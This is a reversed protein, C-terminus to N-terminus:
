LIMAKKSVSPAQSLASPHAESVASSRLVVLASYLSAPIANITDTNPEVSVGVEDPASGLLVALVMAAQTM